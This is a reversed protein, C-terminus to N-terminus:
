LLSGFNPDPDAEESFTIQSKTNCGRPRAVLEPAADADLQRNELITQIAAVHGPSWNRHWVNVDWQRNELITQIAAAHDPSWKRHRAESGTIDSQKHQLWTAQRGGGTFVTCSHTTACSRWIVSLFLTRETPNTLRWRSPLIAILINTQQFWAWVRIPKNVTTTCICRIQIQIWSKPWNSDSDLTINDIQFFTLFLKALFFNWIRFM